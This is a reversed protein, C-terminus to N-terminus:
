PVPPRKQATKGRGDSSGQSTRFLADVNRVTSLGLNLGARSVNLTRRVWGKGKQPTDNKDVDVWADDVHSSAQKQKLNDKSVAPEKLAPLNDWSEQLSSGTPGAQPRAREGRTSLLDCGLYVEHLLGSISMGVEGSKFLNHAGTEACDTCLSGFFESRSDVVHCASCVAMLSLDLEDGSDPNPNAGSSTNIYKPRSTPSYREDSFIRDLLDKLSINIEGLQFSAGINDKACIFCLSGYIQGKPFAGNCDGCIWHPIEPAQNPSM